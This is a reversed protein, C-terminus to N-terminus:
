LKFKYKSELYKRKNGFYGKAVLFGGAKRRGHPRKRPRRVEVDFRQNYLGAFVLGLTSTSSRAGWAKIRVVTLAESDGQGGNCAACNARSSQTIRAAGGSSVTSPTVSRFTIKRM